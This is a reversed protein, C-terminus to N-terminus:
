TSLFIHAPFLTIYKHREGYYIGTYEAFYLKCYLQKLNYQFVTIEFCIASFGRKTFHSYVLISLSIGHELSNVPVSATSM